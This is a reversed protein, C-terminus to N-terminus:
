VCRRQGTLIKLGRSWSVGKRGPCLCAVVFGGCGEELSKVVGCCWKRWKLIFRFLEKRAKGLSEAYCIKHFDAKLEDHLYKPAHALLNRTKHVICRQVKIKPWAEEVAQRLGPNGDIIVLFPRPLGRSILNELVLGWAKTSESGKLWLGLLVKKGGDRVGVAALISVRCCRGGLRIKVTFGDLYLYALSEKDLPREQWTEFHEKLKSILRSVASRSLPVNKFLPRLARKIRRTNVGSLYLGIIADDIAKARRQYRPIFRCHWERKSGAGNFLRARPMPFTTKGFSTSITKAEFGHRYGKRADSRGYWAVALVADLEQQILEIIFDRIKGRLASTLPDEEFILTSDRRTM